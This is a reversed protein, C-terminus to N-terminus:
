NELRQNTPLYIRDAGIFGPVIGAMGACQISDGFEEHPQRGCYNSLPVDSAKGFLKIALMTALSVAASAPAAVYLGIYFYCWLGIFTGLLMALAVTLRSPWRYHIGFVIPWIASAVFAGSIGIILNCLVLDRLFHIVKKRIVM